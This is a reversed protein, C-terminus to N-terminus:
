ARDDPQGMAQATVIARVEAGLYRQELDKVLALVRRVTERPSVARLVPFSPVDLSRAGKSWTGKVILDPGILREGREKAERAAHEPALTRTVRLLLTHGAYPGERDPKILAPEARRPRMYHDRDIPWQRPADRERIHEPLYPRGTAPNITKRAQEIWRELKRTYQAREGPIEVVKLDYVASIARKPSLGLNLAYRYMAAITEARLQEGNPKKKHPTPFALSVLWISGRPAERAAEAAKKMRGVLEPDDCPRRANARAGPKSCTVVGASWTRWDIDVKVVWEPWGWLNRLVVGEGTLSMDTNGFMQLM